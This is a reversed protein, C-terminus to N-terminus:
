YNCQVAQLGPASRRERCKDMAQQISDYNSQRGTTAPRSDNVAQQDLTIGDRVTNCGERDWYRLCIIKGQKLEGEVWYTGDSSRYKYNARLVTKDSGQEAIKVDEISNPDLRNLMWSGADLKIAQELVRALSLPAPKMSALRAAQIAARRDEEAKALAAQEVYAARQEAQRQEETAYNRFYEITSQAQYTFGAGSPLKVNVGLRFSRASCYADFRMGNPFVLHCTTGQISGQFANEGPIGGETRVNGSIVGNSAEM